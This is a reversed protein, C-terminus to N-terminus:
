LVTSLAFILSLVAIVLFIRKVAIPVNKEKKKFFIICFILSLMLVGALIRLIANRIYDIELVVGFGLASETDAIQSIRGELEKEIDYDGTRKALAQISIGNENKANGSTEFNDELWNKRGHIIYLMQNDECIGLYYYDKGTPILGNISNEVVLLEYAKTISVNHLDKKNTLDIISMVFFEGIFSVIVIGILIKSLITKKM